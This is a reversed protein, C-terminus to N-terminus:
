TLEGVPEYRESPYPELYHDIGSEHLSRVVPQGTGIWFEPDSHAPGITEALRALYRPRAWWFNGSFHPAPEAHWNVGCLDHDALAGACERWRGAVFSQMYRRWAAVNPNRWHHDSVGKAHMYWAARALPEDRECFRRAHELIPREYATAEDSLHVVEVRDGLAAELEAAGAAAEPGVVACHVRTTAEELGSERWAAVQEALVDRWNNITCLHYFGFVDDRGARLAAGAAEPPDGPDPSPEYAFPALLEQCRRREDASALPMTVVNARVRAPDLRGGPRLWDSPEAVALNLWEIATADIGNRAVVGHLPQGGDDIVVTCDRQRRAALAREGDAELVLGSWRLRREADLTESDLPDGGRDSVEVFDLCRAEGFLREARLRDDESVAWSRSERAPDIALALTPLLGLRELIRRKEARIRSLRRSWEDTAIAERIRALDAEFDELELAIFAEPDIFSDLNPAGWYFCLAEGLICDLVKETVFNPTAHNEADFYYRYPLIARSKDYKPTPGRDRRFGNEPDGYIDLDLDQGDLFRLFDIRKVHGPDFYKASVCAAITATKEPPPGDRLEAFGRGIWWEVSNRYRRHDRVQLFRLPSPAAWPGWRGRMPESSMEPEQQFVVTRAPDPDAQEAGTASFVAWFDTAADDDVLRMRWPRGALDTFPWEYNGQPTMSNFLECLGRSDSWWSLPRVRIVEGPHIGPRADDSLM